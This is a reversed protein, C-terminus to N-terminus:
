NPWPDLALGLIELTVPVGKLDQPLHDNISPGYV